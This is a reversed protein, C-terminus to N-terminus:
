PGKAGQASSPGLVDALDSIVVCPPLFDLQDLAHLVGEVAEPPENQVHYDWRSKTKLPQAGIRPPPITSLIKLSVATLRASLM